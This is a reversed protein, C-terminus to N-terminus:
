IITRNKIQRIARKYFRELGSKTILLALFLLTGFIITSVSTHLILGFISGEDILLLKKIHFFIFITVSTCLIHKIVLIFYSSIKKKLGYKYLFIPKWFKIIIIQSAIAGSLVGNLGYKYGFVISLSINLLAEILPAYIDQYLGFGNIFQDVSYRSLSIYLMTIILILTSQPLIYQEGIWLAIFPQTEIFAIFCITVVIFFRLSFLEEFVSEIRLMNGEAILNGISANVGNFISSLLSTIGSTIILYNGYLAVINLNTYAYIILPSTQTLAFGGIKHFFLQKIKLTFSPYKYRLEKFGMKVSALYPFTKSTIRNLSLTAITAFLVELILWWIYGNEFFYISAMQFAIKLIIISKYSYIVKYELQSATLVIQRYNFFYGLLSSYLLVSFSTYAYWIPLDIKKFILPFFSMLFLAGLIILFGIRRYIHGQLTVIENITVKDNESIPKYLMFSVGASIGLEALNLFQLLNMATTNLGLIETGLYELFIKRSYFQLILNVVYFCTAVFSNRLSSFTRSSQTM